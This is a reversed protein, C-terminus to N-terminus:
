TYIPYCVLFLVVGAVAIMRFNIRQRVPTRTMTPNILTTQM